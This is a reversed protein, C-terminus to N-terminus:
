EEILLYILIVYFLSPVFYANYIEQFYSIQRPHDDKKNKLLM